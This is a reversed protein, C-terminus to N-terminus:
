EVLKLRMPLMGSRVFGAREYLRQVNALRVSALKMSRPPAPHLRLFWKSALAAGTRTGACCVDM